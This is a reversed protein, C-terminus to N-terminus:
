ALTTLATLDDFVNAPLTTLSNDHLDLETLGTLGAFDGAQLSGLSSESVDLTGTLGALHAVTVDACDTVGPVASVIADRVAPTRACVDTEAVRVAIWDAARDVGGNGGVGPVPTVQLRFYLTAASDPASFSAMASRAGTLTVGDTVATDSSAGDM